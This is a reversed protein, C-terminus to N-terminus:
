DLPAEGQGPSPLLREKKKRRRKKLKEETKGIQVGPEEIEGAGKLTQNQTIQKKKGAAKRAKIAFPLTVLSGLLFAIFLSIFVPVEKFIFFGFSIDSVNKANFASFIVAIALGTLFIVLKWPM